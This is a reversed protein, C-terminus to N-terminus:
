SCIDKAKEDFLSVKQYLVLPTYLLLLDANNLKSLSIM